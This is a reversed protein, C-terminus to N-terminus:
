TAELTSKHFHKWFLVSFHIAQSEPSPSNFFYFFERQARVTLTLRLGLPHTCSNDCLSPAEQCSCGGHSALVAKCWPHLACVPRLDQLLSVASVLHGVAWLPRRHDAETRRANALGKRVARLAADLLDYPGQKLPPKCVDLSKDLGRLKYPTPSPNSGPHHPGPAQANKPGARPAAASLRTLTWTKGCKLQTDKPM